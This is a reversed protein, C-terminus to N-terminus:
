HGVNSTKHWLVWEMGGTIGYRSLIINHPLNVIGRGVQSFQIDM